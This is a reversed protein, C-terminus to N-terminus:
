RRYRSKAPMLPMVISDRCRLIRWWKGFIRRACPTSSFTFRYVSRASTDIPFFDQRVWCVSGATGKRGVVIGPGRYLRENHSGVLGSSGMVAVDGAQRIRAPLAKGYELVCVDSVTGVAWSRPIPGIGSDVLGHRDTLDVFRSKFLSATIQELTAALRRNNEVKDDLRQVIQVLRRQQVLDPVWIKLDQLQGTNLRKTGHSAEDVLGRLKAEIGWLSYYLFRPDIGPRAILGKIDQNFAVRRRALGIMMGNELAMSRVVVLSAGAPVTRSGTAVGLETLKLDADDIFRAHLQKSTELSRRWGLLCALTQEPYRRVVLRCM